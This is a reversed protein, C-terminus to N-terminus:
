TATGQKKDYSRLAGLGLIGMLIQITLNTDIVPFAGTYGFGVQSIFRLVPEFVSSYGLAIAGIWGVSPRWGSVFISTSQAENANVEIQSLQLKIDNALCFKQFEIDLEKAKLLQEATMGSLTQKISDVTKESAGFKGALWEIGSGVLGGAPGGLFSGIAPLVEIWSAM